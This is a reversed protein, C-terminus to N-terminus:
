NLLQIHPHPLIWAPPRHTGFSHFALWPSLCAPELPLLPVPRIWMTFLDRSWEALEPPLPRPNRQRLLGNGLCPAPDTQSWLGRGSPPPLPNVYLKPARKGTMTGCHGAASPGAEVPVATPHISGWVRLWSMQRRNEFRGRLGPFTRGERDREGGKPYPCATALSGEQEM